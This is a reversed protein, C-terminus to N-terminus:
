DYEKRLKDLYDAWAQMMEKREELHTTRNYARGLPDKVTHALQHEIIHIPFKLVEDLMTRAMARFGHATMRDKEIGLRRFAANITNDSMPRQSSRVSPFIYRGNGTLPQIDKLIELAQQSLPVIHQTQTKTVLYRWEAKEFNIDQWEAQRLEGPRVFVLPALKLAARVVFSGEYGYIDKLLSSVQDPETIAPFHQRKARPLAGRLDRTPDSEARGTIVAFRFVQGCTTIARQATELAGRQAIRNAVELLDKPLVDKIQMKGIWPFIDREFRRKVKKHYSESLREKEKALWELTVREFSNESEEIITQHTQKRYEGPDIKDHLLRRFEDRKERAEKLGVEPYIGLSLLKEKGNFRYKFRWWKKGKPTVLLFLGGGDFYKKQKEQPKLNKIQIDKLKM